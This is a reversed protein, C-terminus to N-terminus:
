HIHNWAKRKKINLVLRQSINYKKAIKRQSDTSKYIEIAINDNIKHNPVEIGKKITKLNNAIAHLQNESNTCWELNLVVNNSKNCDIHNVQPKNEPNPIFEIAVLRHVSYKVSAIEVSHYGKASIMHKLIKGTKVNKVDGFNSIYYNSNISSLVWLKEM